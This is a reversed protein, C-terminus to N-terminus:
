PLLFEEFKPEIEEEDDSGWSERKRARLVSWKHAAFKMRRRLISNITDQSDFTAERNTEQARKYILELSLIFSQAGKFDDSAIQKGNLIEDLMRQASYNRRGYNKRLARRTLSLGESPNRNREYLACVKAASGTFYHRIEMFRLM